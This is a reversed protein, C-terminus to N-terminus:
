NYKKINKELIFSKEKEEIVYFDERFYFNRANVNDKLVELRIYNIRKALLSILCNLVFNGLGLHRYKKLVVFHPIYAYKGELNEYFVIIATVNQDERAILFKAFRSWKEAMYPINIVTSIPTDFSNEGLRILKEADDKNLCEINIHFDRM